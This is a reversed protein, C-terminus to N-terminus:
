EPLIPSPVLVPGPTFKRSLRRSASKALLYVPREVLTYFCFCMGVVALLELAWMIVNGEPPWKTQIIRLSQVHVLYISYSALGALELAKWPKVKQHYAIEKGLWFFAFVGFLTLNIPYRVSTHFRLISCVISVGWAGFRWIWIELGSPIVLNGTRFLEALRCGLLWCPLGLIWNLLPGYSPYDGAHPNSMIVCLAPGYSFLLVKRIGYKRFFHLLVPFFLYYLEEALLSWLISDHFLSLKIGTWQGYLIGILMPIWIRIHRRVYYPLIELERGGSYPYHICFGSIVFFVIVAAPGSVLNHWVGVALLQMWSDLNFGRVLDPYEQHGILVWMALIFRLSDLGAVRADNNDRRKM